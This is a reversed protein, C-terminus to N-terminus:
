EALGRRGAFPTSSLFVVPVAAPRRDSVIGGENEDIRYVLKPFSTEYQKQYHSALDRFRDTEGNANTTADRFLYALALAAVCSRASWPSLILNPRNGKEILDREFQEFAEDLQPSFDASEPGLLETVIQPHFRKLTEQTVVNYLKRRVCMADCQIREVKADITLAWEELWRDSYDRTLTFAGSVTFSAVGVSDVSVAGSTVTEGNENTLTYTGSTPRAPSAGRYVTLSVVEDQGRELLRPLTLDPSLRAM